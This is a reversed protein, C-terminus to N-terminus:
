QILVVPTSSDSSASSPLHRLFRPKPRDCNPDSDVTVSKGVERWGIFCSLGDEGQEATVLEDVDVDVETLRSDSALGPRSKKPGDTVPVREDVDDARESRGKAEVDRGRSPGGSLPRRRKVKVFAASPVSKQTQDTTVDEHVGVLAVAVVNVLFVVGMPRTVIDDKEPLLGIGIKNVGDLELNSLVADQDLVPLLLNFPEQLSLLAGILPVNRLSRLLPPLSLRQHVICLLTLPARM